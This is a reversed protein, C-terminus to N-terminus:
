VVQGFVVEGTPEIYYTAYHNVQTTACVFHQRYEPRYGVPLVFVTTNNSGGIFGGRIHVWSNVTRKFSVPPDAGFANTWGNLFPPSEDTLLADVGDVGATGVYIWDEDARRELQYSRRGLRVTEKIHSDFTITQPM